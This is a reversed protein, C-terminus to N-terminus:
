ITMVDGPMGDEMDWFAASSYKQFIDDPLVSRREVPKVQSGVAHLGPAGIRADFLMAEYDPEIRGFDHAALPHGIRRCIERLVFAPDTTLTEFRVLILNRRHTDFVAERLANMAFGIMGTGSMLAEARSYVTSDPSYNFIASPELPNRRTLRELSDLIWAPNRVPAIVISEPWLAALASMRSCWARHTDFVIQRDLRDAYYNDFVGALVRRRIDDDIFVSEPQEQSMARMLTAFLHSVPSSM